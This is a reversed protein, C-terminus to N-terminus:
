EKLRVAKKFEKLRQSRICKFRCKRLWSRCVTFLLVFINFIVIFVICAVIAWGAQIRPNEDGIWNTFVLLPYGALLM